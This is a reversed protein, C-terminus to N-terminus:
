ANVVQRPRGVPKPQKEAQVLPHQWPLGRSLRVVGVVFRTTKGYTRCSRCPHWSSWFVGGWRWGAGQCHRCDTVPDRHAALVSVAVATVAALVLVVYGM